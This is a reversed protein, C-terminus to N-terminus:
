FVFSQIVLTHLKPASFASCYKNMPNLPFKNPDRKALTTSFFTITWPRRKKEGTCLFISTRSLFLSFPFLGIKHTHKFVSLVGYPLGYNQLMSSKIGQADYQVARAEIQEFRRHTEKYFTLTVSLILLSSMLQM